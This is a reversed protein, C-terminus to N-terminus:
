SPVRTLRRFTMRDVECRYTVGGAALVVRIGPVLAGTTVKGPGPAPGSPFHAKEISIVQVAAPEVDADQAVIQRALDLMEPETM